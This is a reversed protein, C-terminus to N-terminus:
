KEGAKGGKVEVKGPHLVPYCVKLFCEDSCPPGEATSGQNEIGDKNGNAHSSSGNAAAPRNCAIVYKRKNREDYEGHEPCNYVFCICCRLERLDVPKGNDAGRENINLIDSVATKLITKVQPDEKLVSWLSLKTITSTAEAMLSAATGKELATPALKAVLASKRAPTQLDDPSISYESALLQGTEAMPENGKELMTGIVEQVSLNYNSIMRHVVPLLRLAQEKHRHKAPLYRVQDDFYEQLLGIDEPDEEDGFFPNYRLVNDNECLINRKVSTFARYRPVIPETNRYM